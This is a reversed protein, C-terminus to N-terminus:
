VRYEALSVRPLLMWRVVDPFVTFSNNKLVLYRLRSLLSFAMPLTTLRNHALAIRYALCLGNPLACMATFSSCVGFSPVKPLQSMTRALRPSNRQEQSESTLSARTRLTLLLAEM